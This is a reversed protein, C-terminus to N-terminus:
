LVAAAPIAVVPVVVAVAAGIHVATACVATCFAAVAAV